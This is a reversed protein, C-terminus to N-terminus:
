LDGFDFENIADLQSQEDSSLSEHIAESALQADVGWYQGLNEAIQRKEHASFGGFARRLFVISRRFQEEDLAQVYQALQEWLLQRGILAYRNRKALGEFWGAGLDAAIGPSLRRSVERVLVDDAMLSRELLIACAYGSLIPSRDDAEALKALEDLWLREEVIEHHDLSVRNLEDMARLCRAAADNDGTAAPLLALSGQVFLESLLPLLPTTDMKRVDGYRVIVSLESAAGALSEISSTGCSLAQVKSRASDVAAALGCECALRVLMAAHKVDTCEELQSRLKYAAALEVTEGLLVAEVLEIECEPTWQLAWKESWTASQQRSDFPKAFPIALLKLRHLFTSRSLDLFAAAATKAQRNERLDLHLEQKTGARYKDLKLQELQWQFDTQISTQSVGKPLQGIADGIDAKVLSAALGTAEGQGILTVAADRLDGHTPALGGRLASLTRALRVAEIVEATSRHTGDLRQLRAVQALYRAPVAHLDNEQMAQWMRDFYAPARNGAGYGSQSSLRYYSYPMLTLKTGRKPLAELEEDSMPPLENGLVPAHFAGVVAVIKAPRVGSRIVEAIRRRMYAERVLNEARWHPADEELERLGVGLALSGQQYSGLSLNHEFHREWFSEYDVEGAQDAFRQYISRRDMAIAADADLSESADEADDKEKKRAVRTEGLALFITSPLDIFELRKRHQEAWRMAQYEPSYEALPSVITRVPLSDTYALFAIPPKTDRRVVDGVLEIADSMAEILVADPHVQDLFQRLHWAGSPSLHRIGFVHIADM